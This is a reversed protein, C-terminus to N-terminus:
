QAESKWLRVPNGDYDAYTGAVSKFVKEPHVRIGEVGVFAVGYRAEDLELDERRREDIAEKVADKGLVRELEQESSASM